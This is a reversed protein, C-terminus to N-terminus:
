CLTWRGTMVLSEPVQLSEAVQQEKWMGLSTPDNRKCTAIVKAHLIAIAASPCYCGHTSCVDLNDGSKPPLWNLLFRVSQSASTM